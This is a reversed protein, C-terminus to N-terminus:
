LVEIIKIHPKIEIIYEKFNNNIEFELKDYDNDFSVFLTHKGNEIPLIKEEGNSFQYLASDIRIDVLLASGVVNEVRKIKISNNKLSVNETKVQEPENNITASSVNNIYFTKLIKKRDGMITIGLKELDSETLESIIEIDTLKNKEFLEIYDGLSNEMLVDKWNKGIFKILHERKKLPANLDKKKLLTIIQLGKPGYGWLWLFWLLFFGVLIMGFKPEKIAEVEIENYGECKVKLYYHKWVASSVEITANPTKGILQGNVFVEAGIIEEGTESRVKVTMEM